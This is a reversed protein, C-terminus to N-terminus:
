KDIVYRSEVWKKQSSGDILYIRINSFDDKREIITYETEEITKSCVQDRELYKRAQSVNKYEKINNYSICLVTSFPLFTRESADKTAARIAKEQKNKKKESIAEKRLQEAEIRNIEAEKRQQLKKTIKKNLKICSPTKCSIPPPKNSFQKIGEADLWKYIEGAQIASLYFFCLFFTYLSYKM